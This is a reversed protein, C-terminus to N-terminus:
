YSQFLFIHFIKWTYFENIEIIYNLVLLTIYTRLQLCKHMCLASNRIWNYKEWDVYDFKAKSKTVWNNSAYMYFTQRQIVLLFWALHQHEQVDPLM